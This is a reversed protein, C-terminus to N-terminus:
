DSAIMLWSPQVCPLNRIDDISPIGPFYLNSKYSFSSCSRRWNISWNRLCPTWVPDSSFISECALWDDIDRWNDLSETDLTVDCVVLMLETDDKDGEWGLPDHEGDGEGDSFFFDQNRLEKEFANERELRGWPPPRRWPVPESESSEEPGTRPIALVQDAGEEGM